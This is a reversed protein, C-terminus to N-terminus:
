PTQPASWYHECIRICDSLCGRFSGHIETARTIRLLEELNSTRIGAGPMIILRRIHSHSPKLNNYKEDSYQIARWIAEAGEPATPFGGSTLIRQITAGKPESEPALNREYIWDILRRAASEYVSTEDIARHFTVSIHAPVTDLFSGLRRLDVEGERTLCGFVLGDAGLEIFRRAQALMTEFEHDTYVFDGSRVRIMVFIPVDARGKRRLLERAETYLDESPTIGGVSLDGCLEIRSAGANVASNILDLTDCCVEVAHKYDSMREM